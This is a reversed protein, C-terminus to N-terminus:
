RFKNKKVCSTGSVLINFFYGYWSYLIKPFQYLYLYLFYCVNTSYWGGIKKLLSKFWIMLGLHAYLRIRLVVIAYQFGFVQHLNHFVTKLFTSSWTHAQCTTKCQEFLHSSPFSSCICYILFHCTSFYVYHPVLTSSHSCMSFFLLCLYTCTAIM